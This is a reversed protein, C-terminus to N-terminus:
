PTFHLHGLHESQIFPSTWAAVAWRYGLAITMYIAIMIAYFRVHHYWRKFLAYFPYPWFGCAWYSFLVTFMYTVTWGTCTTVLQLKSPLHMHLLAPNRTLIAVWSLFIHPLHILHMKFVFTELSFPIIGDKVLKNMYNWLGKDFHVLGYYSVTLHFGCAGVFPEIFFSFDGLWPGLLNVNLLRGYVELVCLGRHIIWLVNTWMTLFSFKGFPM